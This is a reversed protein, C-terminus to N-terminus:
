RIRFVAAPNCDVFSIIANDDFYRLDAAARRFRSSASRRLTLDDPSVPSYAKFNIDSTLCSLKRRM